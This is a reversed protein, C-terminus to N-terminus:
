PLNERIMEVVEGGHGHLVARATYLAMGLAAEPAIFPPTVLQMPAVDVHLLAAGPQALWLRVADELETVKGVRHGWIGVAKAVAGFDPNKLGTYLPRMGEAKQEIEVFGLKGNDFVVVKIPLEEQVLTLLDGMLMTFGGDGCLAVVQRGPHSAQLGIAASLGAAMTGHLLSAFTRRKGGTDIHRLMWVTATGDDATFLTDPAALRNILKALYTGTIMGDRKPKEAAAKECEKRHREVHVQLFTPDEHQKLRPLLVELTARVDGLAGITVPHRRGLHTPNDDIQIIKAKGPYFQPWAFDTGLLLLVDCGLVAQYGGVGGIIGTMGVNYPNDYEVFDKGRSTHAMPAQLRAATAVIEDHAGQSGAGAYITIASSANLLDAIEDLQADSPRIVSDPVHVRYSLPAHFTSASIDVPVILVAVGRKSLAAQCAAVTKRQAQDPTLIMECFVSCDRLVDKFDVEQISEFGLDARAIQSAILVVPARNRNAEYLGNIFHLSGPGCSGACAVLEGTMQAEAGAAFAGAEEHRVQIWDILSEDIAHAFHNVTDGVIGYCRMVGAAHLTEVIVQAVNKSM